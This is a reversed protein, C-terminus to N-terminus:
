KLFKCKLHEPVEADWPIKEDCIESYIIKELVHCPSITGLPDYISTM